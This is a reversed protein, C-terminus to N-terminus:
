VRWTATTEIVGPTNYSPRRDDIQMNINSAPPASIQPAGDIPPDLIAKFGTGIAMGILADGVVDMPTRLKPDVYGKAYKLGTGIIAPMAIGSAKQQLRDVAANGDLNKLDYMIAEYVSNKTIKGAGFLATARSVYATYFTLGAAAPMVLPKLKTLMGKARKGYRRATDRYRTVSIAPDYRRVSRRAHHRHKRGRRPAPDYSRSGKCMQPMTARQKASCNIKGRGKRGRRPAPDYLMESVEAEQFGQDVLQEYLEERANNEGISVGADM